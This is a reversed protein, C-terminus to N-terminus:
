SSRLDADATAPLAVDADLPVGDFTDVRTAVTGPCFRVDDRPACDHTGFPRPAASAPAVGAVVFVLVLAALLPRIRLRM